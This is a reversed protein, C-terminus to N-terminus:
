HHHLKRKLIIGDHTHEGVIVATAYEYYKGKVRKGISEIHFHKPAEQEGSPYMGDFYRDVWKPIYGIYWGSSM